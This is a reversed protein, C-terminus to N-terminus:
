KSTARLSEPMPARWQAALSIVPSSAPVNPAVAYEGRIGVVVIEITTDRRKIWYSYGDLLRSVIQELTGSYSGDIVRDLAISTKYHVNMGKGLESLAEAIQSQSVDIRLSKVNGQVRVEGGVADPGAALMCALVSAAAILRNLNARPSSAFNSNVDAGLSQSILEGDPDPRSLPPM